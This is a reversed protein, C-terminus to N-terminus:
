RSEKYIRYVTCESGNLTKSLDPYKLGSSVYNITAGSWFSTDLTKRNREIWVRSGRKM